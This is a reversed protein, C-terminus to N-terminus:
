ANTAPGRKKRARLDIMGPTARPDAGKPFIQHKQVKQTGTTPIADTFWLWGPAKYYALAENCHDFLARVTADDPVSAAAVGPALVVCALV